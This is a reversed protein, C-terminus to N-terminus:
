QWLQNRMVELYAVGSMLQLSCPLSPDGEIKMSVSRVLSCGNSLDRQHTESSTYALCASRGFFCDVAQHQARSLSLSGYIEMTPGNEIAVARRGNQLILRQGFVKNVVHPVQDKEIYVVLRVESPSNAFEVMIAALGDMKVISECLDPPFVESLRMARPWRSQYVPDGDFYATYPATEPWAFKGATHYTGSQLDSATYSGPGDVFRQDPVLQDFDRGGQSGNPTSAVMPQLSNISEIRPRKYSRLSSDNIPERRTAGYLNSHLPLSPIPIGATNLHRRREPSRKARHFVHGFLAEVSPDFEATSVRKAIAQTIDPGLQAFVHKDVQKRNTACFFAFWAPFGEHLFIREAQEIPNLIRNEDVTLQCASRLATDFDDPARASEIFSTLFLEINQQISSINPSSQDM